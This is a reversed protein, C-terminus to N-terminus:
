FGYKIVVIYWWFLLFFINKCEECVEDVFDM